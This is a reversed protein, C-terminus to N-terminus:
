AQWPRGVTADSRSPHGGHRRRRGPRPGVPVGGRRRPDRGTGRGDRRRPPDPLREFASTDTNPGPVSIGYLLAVDSLERELAAGAPGVESFGATFVIVDRVGHKGCEEVTSAVLRTGVDIVALSIEVPIDTVHRYIPVDGVHDGKANVLYWHEGWRETCASRLGESDASCNFSGALAVGTPHFFEELDNRCAM